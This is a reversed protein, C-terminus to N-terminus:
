QVLKPSDKFRQEKKRLYGLRKAQSERCQHMDRCSRVLAAIMLRKNSGEGQPEPRPPFHDRVVRCITRWVSCHKMLRQPSAIKKNHAQLCWIKTTPHCRWFTMLARNGKLARQLRHWHIDRLSYHLNRTMVNRTQGSFCQRGVWIEKRFKKLSHRRDEPFYKRQLIKEKVKVQAKTLQKVVNPSKCPSMRPLKLKKSWKEWKRIYWISRKIFHIRDLLGSIQM